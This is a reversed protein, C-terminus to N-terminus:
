ETAEPPRVARQRRRDRRHRSWGILTTVGLGIGLTLWSSPEPVAGPVVLDSSIGYTSNPTSSPAVSFDVWFSNSLATTGSLPLTAGLQVSFGGQGNPITGTWVGAGVFTGTLDENIAHQLSGSWLGSSNTSTSTAVLTGDSLYVPDTTPGTIHNIADVMSTSGIAQWSVTAGNYTAGGAQNTVFIDYDMINASSATTTGDTVFVFRFHSGPALGAPTPLVPGAHVPAVRGIGACLLAAVLVLRPM